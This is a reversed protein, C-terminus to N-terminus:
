DNAAVCVSKYLQQKLYQNEPEKLNTDSPHRRTLIVGETLVLHRGQFMYMWNNRIRFPSQTMYCASCIIFFYRRRKEELEWLPVQLVFCLCVCLCQVQAAFSQAQKGDLYVSSLISWLTEYPLLVRQYQQLVWMIAARLTTHICRRM